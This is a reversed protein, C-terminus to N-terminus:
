FADRYPPPLPAILHGALRRCALSKSFLALFSHKWHNVTSRWVGVFAGALYFGAPSVNLGTSPFLYAPITGSKLQNELRALCPTNSYTVNPAVDIVPASILL